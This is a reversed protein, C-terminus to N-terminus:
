SSNVIKWLGNEIKPGFKKLAKLQPHIGFKHLVKLTLFPTSCHITLAKGLFDPYENCIASIATADKASSLKFPKGPVFNM